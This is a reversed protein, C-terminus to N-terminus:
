GVDPSLATDAVPGIATSGRRPGCASNILAPERRSWPKSRRFAAVWWVAAVGWGLGSLVAGWLIGQPRYHYIVTWRGADLWTGRMLRNARLVEVSRVQSPEHRPAAEAEWGPYFQDGLVVLGPATLVAEIEVRGPEYAVIRCSEGPLAAGVVANSAAPPLAAPGDTEVVASQKLDRPRGQPLFVERTREVAANWDSPRITPLTEARHVIWARPLAQPEALLATAPPSQPSLVHARLVVHRAGITRVYWRPLSGKGLDAPSEAAVARLAAHDLLSMTGEIDAVALGAGLHHKPFLTDREWRVLEAIRDPSGAAKWEPPLWLPRRYVRRPSADDRDSEGSNIATALRSPQQWLAAPATAVMWGNAVALDVAVVIMAVVQPWGGANRGAARGLLWWSAGCLIAAHLLAFLLDRYSGWVDLPGFIPDAPVRSAVLPWWPAAAGAATALLGSALGLWGLGRRFGASSECFARDWGRAALLTLGLAAVVLWKAPYRFYAYGPLVLNMLWYLGGFPPGVGWPQDPNAGAAARLEQLIWGPGYWGLSAVIAAVTMWSLWRLRADAKRLRLSGVSLVWPLLGLYLSPVWVRGEAPIAEIWRRHVPFQRGAVNPWIFEAMRWPGVSFHYATEAHSGPELRGCSLRELWPTAEARDSRRSFEWAPIVQVASLVLGVAVAGALLLPRFRMPVHPVNGVHRGGHPVNSDHGAHREQRWVILAYVAALLVAHYATQPDGGLVMLALVVGFAVAWRWNRERLMRDAALLAAPLWAAGVLFVVNAVQFLVSGGFTYSMAAVGAAERGAGFRRALRYSTAVALLVHALVYLRYAGDFGVPLLLVLSGPYFVGATPNAALPVGPNDYPNWLPPRGALWETRVHQLLPHYYNGADRFAFMGGGFLVDAFFWVVLGAVLGAILLRRSRM